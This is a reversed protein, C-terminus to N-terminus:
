HVTPDEAHAEGQGDRAQAQTAEALAAATSAMLKDAMEVQSRIRISALAELKEKVQLQLVYELTARAQLITLPNLLPPVFCTQVSMGLLGDLRLAQGPM